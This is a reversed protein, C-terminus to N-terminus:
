TLGDFHNLLHFDGDGRMLDQLTRPDTPYHVTDWGLVHLAATLSRTGTRSLGLGFVKPRHGHEFPHGIHDVHFAEQNPLGLKPVEERALNPLNEIYEAVTDPCANPDVCESAHQIASRAVKFDAEGNWDRMAGELRARQNPTRSRLERLAYKEFISKHSQHYDHLIKFGKFAKNARLRRMALNRLRSEPRLVYALDGAPPAVDRMEQVVDSRTIHVGCHIRGRFRDQVYCDTYPADSWELFPRMNELILCDADVYVVTDAKHDIQLQENVAKSFPMVNDIVYENDPQIAERALELAVQSTREGVTRFVLDVRKSM